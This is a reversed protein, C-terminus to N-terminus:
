TRYGVAKMIEKKYKDVQTNIDSDGVQGDEYRTCVHDPNPLVWITNHKNLESSTIVECLAICTINNSSLFRPGSRSGNSKQQNSKNMPRHSGYGMRSYGSSVSVLPSLYIGKGYAAGNVLGQRIISHWNEIGSGHFAFTSGHKEKFEQFKAEKAPPSSLLLFQYPTRMFSIQKPNLALERSNDPDVVTPYPDFIVKKRHSSCATKTMAILLDVVKLMAGNQFVHPDDCVVCYENLTPIRQLVYRYIQVLFGNELSPIQKANKGFWTTSPKLMLDAGEGGKSSSATSGMASHLASNQRHFNKKLRKMLPPHSSQRAVGRSHKKGSGTGGDKLSEITIKNPSEVRYSVAKDGYLETLSEMDNVLLSNISVDTEMDDENNYYDDMDEDDSGLNSICDAYSSGQLIQTMIKPLPISLVESKSPEDYRSLFSNETIPWSNKDCLETTLLFDERFKQHRASM